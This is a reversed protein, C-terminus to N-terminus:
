QFSYFPLSWFEADGPVDGLGGEGEVSVDSSYNDVKLGVLCNDNHRKARNIDPVIYTWPEQTM